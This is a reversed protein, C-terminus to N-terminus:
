PAPNGGTLFLAMGILVIVTGIVVWKSIALFNAWTEMSQTMDFKDRAKSGQSAM